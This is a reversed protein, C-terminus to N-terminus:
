GKRASLVATLLKSSVFLNGVKTFRLAERGIADQHGQSTDLTVVRRGNPLVKALLRGVPVRSPVKVALIKHALGTFNDDSRINFRIDFPQILFGVLELNVRRYSNIPLSEPHPYLDISRNQGESFPSLSPASELQAM